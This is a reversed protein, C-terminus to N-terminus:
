KSNNFFFIHFHFFFWVPNFCWIVGLSYRCKCPNPALVDDPRCHLTLWHKINEWLFYILICINFTLFITLCVWYCLQSIGYWSIYKLSKMYKQSQGIVYSHYKLSKMYKQSQGIVYIHYEKNQHVRFFPLQIKQSIVVALSIQKLRYCIQDRVYNM